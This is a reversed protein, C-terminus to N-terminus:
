TIKTAEGLGAEAIEEREEETTIQPKGGVVPVINGKQIPKEPALQVEIGAKKFTTPMQPYQGPFEDEVVKRVPRNYLGALRQKEEAVTRDETSIQVIDIVSATGHLARLIFIEPVSVGTKRVVNNRSGDLMIQCDCMQLPNELKKKKKEPM